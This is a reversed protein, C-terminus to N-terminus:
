VQLARTISESIGLGSVNQSFSGEWWCNRLVDLDQYSPGRYTAYSGMGTPEKSTSVMHKFSPVSACEAMCLEGRAQAFDWFPTSYISGSFYHMMIIREAADIASRYASEASSEPQGHLWILEANCNVVDATTFSTAELPELFFSANGNRAVRGEFNRLRRYNHFSFSNTDSSPTLGFEAFVNKVDDQVEELTNFDKNYLYGISCRNKLPIGFVWGYPRAIALTETFKPADWYCQNVYVSNVPIYKSMEFDSYDSPRGSCDMIFDADVEDVSINGEKINVFPKLKEHVYDQLKNANFHMATHPSPFDHVFPDGATGWGKKYIGTKITGDVKPFDRPSFNLSQQLRFPLTLTSGEGVAQPMINPDFHWDVEVDNLKAFHLASM